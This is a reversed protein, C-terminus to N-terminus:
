NIKEAIQDKDCGHHLILQTVKGNKDKVFSVQREAVTYFFTTESEPYISYAPQGTPQIWLTDDDKTISIVVDGLKYHGVYADLLEPAIDIKTHKPNNDPIYFEFDEQDPDHKVQAPFAAAQGKLHRDLFTIICERIVELPEPASLSQDPKSSAIFAQIIPDDCFTMHTTGSVVIELTDKGNEKCFREVSGIFNEKTVGMSQLLEKQIELVGSMDAYFNPSLLFLFPKHFPKTGNVGWLTGDLNIGAKVRADRRCTQATMIGGLSHGIMGIYNFDCMPTLSGFHGEIARDLMLEIDAYCDELVACVPVKRMTDVEHGDAFRILRTMYTHMVMIVVYGHSAIEECFFSYFGRVATFGHAVIVVPYPGHETCVLADPIAHSHLNDLRRVKAPAVGQHALDRKYIERAEYAYPATTNRTSGPDSDLAVSPTSGVAVAPGTEDFGKPTSPYWVQVVLERPKNTEPEHRAPDPLEFLKTGVAYQGTPQPFIFKTMEQGKKVHYVYWSLLCVPILLLWRAQKKKIM